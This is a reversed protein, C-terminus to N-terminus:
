PAGERTLPIRARVRFGGDPRPGVELVGDHVAVRERMGILGLGGGGPPKTPRGDDSVDVEIERALYRIRVDLVTAGAHKVTNTVAEQVIRYAAQSVSRPLPVPDGYVGVTATLGAERANEVLEAVQEVGAATSRAAETGGRDRLVGLMRRLEDVATRATQEIAALAARAKDRDRDLVRRCAAAQVGMVSVHHAVVDHLERAIRVREGMVAREAAEARSRRLEEAQTRLEHERRAALWSLEGFYYAFGFFILNFLVGDIIAALVPPVPGVAGTFPAASLQDMRLALSLGLWAFMAVIVGVRVRGAMRRDPGWAGLTYLAAFLAGSPLQTLPVSRVQGAIFAVSIVVTTVVPWRRRWALPATVALSWWVQEPLTPPSGFPFAGISRALALDFLALVTVALAIWADARRQGATPAPRRWPVAPATSM